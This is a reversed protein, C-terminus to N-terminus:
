EICPNFVEDVEHSTGVYVGPSVMLAGGAKRGSPRTFAGDDGSFSPQGQSHLYDFAKAKFDTNVGGRATLPMLMFAESKTFMVFGAAASRGNRVASCIVEETSLTREKQYHQGQYLSM